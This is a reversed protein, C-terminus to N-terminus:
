WAYVDRSGRNLYPYALDVGHEELHNQIVTKMAGFDNPYMKSALLYGEAILRCRNLGFSEYEEIPDEALGVGPELMKTFEPIEPYLFPIMATHISKIKAKLTDFYSTELYLVAVDARQYGIPEVPLKFSYPIDDSLKESIQEVLQVAGKPSVNWYIRIISRSVQSWTSSYAIWFGPQDETSDRRSVVEIETGPAPLLGPRAPSFYDGPYLMREEKGCIAIVRGTNSVKLVKWGESWLYTGKHASRFVEAWVPHPLPINVKEMRSKTYWQVYLLNALINTLKTEEEHAKFASVIRIAQDLSTTFMLKTDVLKKKM